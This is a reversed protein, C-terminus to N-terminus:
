APPLTSSAGPGAPPPAGPAAPPQPKRFVIAGLLGGLTSFIAGAFLFFIFGILHVGPGGYNELFRHAEPPINNANELIRRFLEREMPAMVLDIPVKLIVYIFAGAVGAML